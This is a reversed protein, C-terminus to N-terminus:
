QTEQFNGLTLLHTHHLHSLKPTIAQSDTLPSPRKFPKVLATETCASQGDEESERVWLNLNPGM